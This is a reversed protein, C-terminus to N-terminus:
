HAILDRLHSHPYRCSFSPLRDRGELIPQGDQALKFASLFSQGWIGVVGESLFM